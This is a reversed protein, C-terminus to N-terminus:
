LRHYCKEYFDPFNRKVYDRVRNAEIGFLKSLEKSWGIKSFDINSNQIIAWREDRRETIHFKPERYWDKHESKKYCNNKIFDSHEIIDYVQHKTLDTHKIVDSIWGYKTIDIGSSLIKYELAKWEDETYANPAAFGNKNLRGERIAKEKKSIVPKMILDDKITETLISNEINKVYVEKDKFSLKQYESWNCRGVLKWGENRLFETRKEDYKIGKETYHTRGDVEFYIRKEPWAFDLFYKKVHFNNEFTGEGFDRTFINYWSQEAYSRVRRGIWECARGEAHAKKMGESIRKKSEDTHPHSNNLHVVNPNEKCFHKIHNIFTAKTTYFTKGCFDCTFNDKYQQGKM